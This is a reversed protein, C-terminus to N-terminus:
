TAYENSWRCIAATKYASAIIHCKNNRCM